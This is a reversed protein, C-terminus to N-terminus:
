LAKTAQNVLEMAKKLSELKKGEVLTPNKYVTAKELEEWTLNTLECAKALAKEDEVPELHRVNTLGLLYDISVNLAKAIKMLTELSPVRLGRLYKSFDSADVQIMKTFQNQKLNQRRFEENIRKNLIEYWEM